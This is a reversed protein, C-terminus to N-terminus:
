KANYEVFIGKGRKGFSEIPIIELRYRTGAKFTFTKKPIVVAFRKKMKELGLYFDSFFLLEKKTPVNQWAKGDWQAIHLAYSHVFDDHVAADFTLKAGKKDPVVVGSAKVPFQPAKRQAARAATYKYTAPDLPLSIRWPSDPKIETKNNLSFRRFKVEKDNVTMYLFHKVDGRRYLPSANFKGNEMSVYSTTGSQIVTYKKQYISREDELPYHSHGSLYIIKSFPQLITTIAGKGYESGYVTKHPPFHSVVFVPKNGSAKIAGSIMGRVRNFISKDYQVGMADSPNFCVFHYGKVQRVFDLEKMRMHTMFNKVKEERTKIERNWFDHNGMVVLLEPKKDPFVEDFTKMFFKYVDPHGTFAVDGTMVIADVGLEKMSRFVQGLVPVNAGRVRNIQYDGFIGVRLDEAAAGAACCLMMCGVFTRRIVNKWNMGIQKM